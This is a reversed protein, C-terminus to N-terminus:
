SIVGLLRLEEELNPTLMGTGMAERLEDETWFRGDELEEPHLRFPGDYTTEFTRVLETEVPSRWVYDHKRVLTCHVDELRVGLEENLERAAAVEYTEGPDLHGGVSTDWKGPQIDKTMARKQLLFRGEHDRLFVHVARHVLSPDGHCKSRAELGIVRGNEDVIELMEGASGTEKAGMLEGRGFLM